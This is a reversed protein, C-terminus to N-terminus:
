KNTGMAAVVLVALGLMGVIWWPWMPEAPMASESNNAPMTWPGNREAM